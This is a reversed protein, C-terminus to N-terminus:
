LKELAGVMAAIQATDVTPGNSTPEDLLRQLAPGALRRARDPHVAPDTGRAALRSRLIRALVPAVRHDFDEASYEKWGLMRELRALDGPRAVPADPAVLGKFPSPRRDSMGRARAFAAVAAAGLLVVSAATLWIGIAGPFMAAGLAAILLLAAAGAVRGTTM